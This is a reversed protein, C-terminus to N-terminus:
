SNAFGYRGPLGISSGILEKLSIRAQCSPVTRSDDAKDIKIPGFKGISLVFSLVILYNSSPGCQGAEINTTESLLNSSRCDPVMRGKGTTLFFIDTFNVKFHVLAILVILQFRVACNATSPSDANKSNPSTM